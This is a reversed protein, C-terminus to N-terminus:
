TTSTNFGYIEMPFKLLLCLKEPVYSHLCYQTVLYLLARYCKYTSNPRMKAPQPWHYNAAEQTNLLSNKSEILLALIEHGYM